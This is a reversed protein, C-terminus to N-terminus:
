KAPVVVAWKHLIVVSFQSCNRFCSSWDANDMKYTANKNKFGLIVEPELIRARLNVLDMGLALNWAKM